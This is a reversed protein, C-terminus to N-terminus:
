SRQRNILHATHTIKLSSQERCDLNTVENRGVMQLVGDSRLYIPRQLLETSVLRCAPDPLRLRTLRCKLSVNATLLRVCMVRTILTTIVLATRHAAEGPFAPLAHCRRTPGYDACASRCQQIKALFRM